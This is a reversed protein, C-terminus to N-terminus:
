RPTCRCSRRRRARSGSRIEGAPRRVPAKLRAHKRRLGIFFPPGFVHSSQIFGGRAVAHVDRKEAPAVGSFRADDVGHGPLRERDDGVHLARRGVRHLFRHLQQREARDDDDVRGADVVLAGDARQAYLARPLHQVLGVDGHEDHVARRALRLLVFREAREEPFFAHREERDVVLRIQLRDRRGTFVFDGDARQGALVDACELFADRRERLGAGSLFRDEAVQELRAVVDHEDRRDVFGRRLAAHDQRLHLRDAVNEVRACGARDRLHLRQGAHERAQLLRRPEDHGVALREALDLREHRFGHRQGRKRDEKRAVLAHQLRRRAARGRDLRQAVAVAHQDGLPARVVPLAGVDAGDLQRRPDLLVGSFRQPEREGRAAAERLVEGGVREDDM